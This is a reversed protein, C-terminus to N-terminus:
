QIRMREGQGLGGSIMNHWERGRESRHGRQPAEHAALIGWDESSGQLPPDACTNAVRTNEVSACICADTPGDMPAEHLHVAVVDLIWWKWLRRSGMM